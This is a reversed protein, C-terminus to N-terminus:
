LYKQGKQFKIKLIRLFLADEIHEIVDFLGASVPGSNQIQVDEFPM